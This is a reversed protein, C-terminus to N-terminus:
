NSRTLPDDPTIKVNRGDGIRFYMELIQFFQLFVLVYIRITEIETEPM